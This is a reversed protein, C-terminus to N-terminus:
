EDNLDGTEEVCGVPVKSNELLHVLQAAESLTYGESQRKRIKKLIDAVGHGPAEMGKKDPTESIFGAQRHNWNKRKETTMPRVREQSAYAATEEGKGQM